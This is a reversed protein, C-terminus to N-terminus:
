DIIYGLARLREAEEPELEIQNDPASDREFQSRRREMEALLMRVAQPEDSSLDIQESPDAELNYLAVNEPNQQHVLKFKGRRISSFIPFMGQGRKKWQLGGSAEAHLFRDRLRADLERSPKEEPSGELIPGLDFGELTAPQEVGGWALITPALDVLSVPATKRQGPRIGPGRVVLPVRLVEQYTTMLHYFAGHDAFEEGHDSTVIVNARELLGEGELFRFFRGLETDIQRIGGDYLAKLHQLDEASFDPKTVSEDVYHAAPGEGFRCREEDFNARCSAIYADPLSALNLQWTTGDVEGEYPTVFRKEHQPLSNYDSHVDYYHMFLFLDAGDANAEAVWQIAKDTVGLTPFRQELVEQVYYFDEFERSLEHTKRLLWGSNVAAATRWGREGLLKALTPVNEPLKRGPQTVQHALPYLGTLMSAHAPLTWPSVSSADEFTAGELAFLDLNPSTLRPYGYLSLHDARLTDISILVILRATQVPARSPRQVEQPRETEAPSPASGECGSVLALLLSCAVAPAAVLRRPQQVSPTM